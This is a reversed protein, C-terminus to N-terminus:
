TCAAPVTPRRALTHCFFHPHLNWKASTDMPRHPHDQCFHQSDNRPNIFLKKMLYRWFEGFDARAWGGKTLRVAFRSWSSWTLHIWITRKKAFESTKLWTQLKTEPFTLGESVACCAGSKVWLLRRTPAEPGVRQSQSFVTRRQAWFRWWKPDHITPSLQVHPIETQFLSGVSADEDWQWSLYM